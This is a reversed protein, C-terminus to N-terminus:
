KKVENNICIEDISGKSKQWLHHLARIVLAADFLKKSTEQEALSGTKLILSRIELDDALKIHGAITSVQCLNRAIGRNKQFATKSIGNNIADVVMVASKPPQNPNKPGEWAKITILSLGFFDALAQQTKFGASKRKDAFTMKEVM